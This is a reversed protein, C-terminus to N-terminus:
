RSLWFEKERCKGFYVEDVVQALPRFSNCRKYVKKLDLHPAILHNHTANLYKPKAGARCIREIEEKPQRINEPHTWEQQVGLGTFVGRCANVDALLWSEIMSIPVVPVARKHNCNLQKIIKIEIENRHKVDDLSDADHCIILSKIKGLSLLARGAKAGDKLLESGGNFGRGQITVSKTGCIKWIIQQITLFDSKDEALVGFM